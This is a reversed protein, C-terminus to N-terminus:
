KDPNMGYYYGYVAEFLTVLIHYQKEDNVQDIGTSIFSELNGYYAAAKSNRSKARAVTYAVKSKIMKIYPKQSNWDGGSELIREYRKVEDFLRRLQTASIQGKSGKEDTKVFSEAISKATTDFLSVPINGGEMLKYQVAKPAPVGKNQQGRNYDNNFAM